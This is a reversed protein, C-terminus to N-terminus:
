GLPASDVGAERQRMQAVICVRVAHIPPECASSTALVTM